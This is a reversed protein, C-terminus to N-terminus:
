ERLTIRPTQVSCFLNWAYRSTSIREQSAHLWNPTMGFSSTSLIRAAAEKSTSRMLSISSIVRWSTTAKVRATLSLRPGLALPDMVSKGGGVDHVRGVAIEELLFLTTVQATFAKTSAVIGCM